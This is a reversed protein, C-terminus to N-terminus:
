GSVRISAVLMALAVVDEESASAGTKVSALLTHGSVRFWLLSITPGDGTSSGEAFDEISLPPSAPSAPPSQVNAPDDDTAIVLAIGDTPLVLGSTQIPLGPEISPAPLDVNSIQTGIASAHGKTTEFPLVSWGVPVDATWGAPDTYTTTDAPRDSGSREDSGSDCAVLALSVVAVVAASRVDVVV